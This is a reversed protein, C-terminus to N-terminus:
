YTEGANKEIFDKLENQRLQYSLNGVFVHAEPREENSAVATNAHDASMSPPISPFLPTSHPHSPRHFKVESVLTVTCPYIYQNTPARDVLVIRVNNIFIYININYIYLSRYICKTHYEMDVSIEGFLSYESEQLCWHLEHQTQFFPSSLKVVIILM